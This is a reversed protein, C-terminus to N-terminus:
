YMPGLSVPDPPILLHVGVYLCCNADMEKDGRVTCMPGIYMVPCAAMSGRWGHLWAAVRGHLWPPSVTSSPPRKAAHHQATHSNTLPAIGNGPLQEGNGPLPM